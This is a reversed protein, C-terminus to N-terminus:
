SVEDGGPERGGRRYSKTPSLRLIVPDVTAGGLPWFGNRRWRVAPMTNVSIM